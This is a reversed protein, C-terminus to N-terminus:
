GKLMAILEKTKENVAKPSINGLYYYNDDLQIFCAHTFTKYKRCSSYPESVLFGNNCYIPPLIELFYWYSAEDVQDFPKVYDDWSSCGSLRWGKLTKM